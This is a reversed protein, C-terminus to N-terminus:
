TRMKKLRPVRRTRTGQSNAPRIQKRLRPKKAVKRSEGDDVHLAMREEPLARRQREKVSFLEWNGDSGLNVAPRFDVPPGTQARPTTKLYVAVLMNPRLAPIRVRADFRDVVVLSSQNFDVLMTLSVGVGHPPLDKQKVVYPVAVSVTADCCRFAKADEAELTAPSISSPGSVSRHFVKTGATTKLSKTSSSATSPVSSHGPDEM